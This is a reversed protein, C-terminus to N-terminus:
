FHLKEFHIEDATTLKVVPDAGAIAMSIECAPSTRATVQARIRSSSPAFGILDMLGLMFTRVNMAAILVHRLALFPHNSIAAPPPPDHFTAYASKAVAMIAKKM